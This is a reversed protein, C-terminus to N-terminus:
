NSETRSGSQKKAPPNKAQALVRDFEGSFLAAVKPDDIVLLNEDNEDNASASFNFSGAIVVRDDVVIVKHHMVWPNGDTYVPVGAKKLKGYESFPTQSGTTEFVGEVAVGAKFKDLMAKGIGDHTFSFALFKISKRADRDITDVVLNACKGKPSFCNQVSDGEVTM